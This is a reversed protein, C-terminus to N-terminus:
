RGGPGDPPPRDTGDPRSGLIRARMDDPIPMSLAEDILRMATDPSEGRLRAALESLVDALLVAIAQHDPFLDRGARLVREAADLAGKRRLEFAQVVFGRAFDRDARAARELYPLGRELDGDQILLDAAMYLAAPVDDRRLLPEMEGLAEERQLFFAQFRAADIREWKEPIRDKFASPDEFLESLLRPLYGFELPFGADGNRNVIRVEDTAIGADRLTRYVRLVTPVTPTRVEDKDLAVFFGTDVVIIPRKPWYAATSLSGVRVGEFRGTGRILAGDLRFSDSGRLPEPLTGLWGRFHGPPIVGELPVVQFVEPPRGAGGALLGIRDEASFVLIPRASPHMEDRAMGKDFWGAEVVQVDAAATAAGLAAAAALLVSLARRALFTRPKPPRLPERRKDHRSPRVLM